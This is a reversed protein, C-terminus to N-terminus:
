KADKKLSFKRGGTNAAIIDLADLAHAIAHWLLGACFVIACYELFATFSFYSEVRGYDNEIEIYSLAIAGILGGFWFIWAFAHFAQSLFSPEFKSEPATEGQADLEKFTVQVPSRQGEKAKREQYIKYVEAYEEDTLNLPTQTRTMRYYRPQGDIMEYHDYGYYQAFEPNRYSKTAYEREEQEEVLGLSHLIQEREQDKQARQEEVLKQVAPHM